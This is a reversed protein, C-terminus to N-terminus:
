AAHQEFRSAIENAPDFGTLRVLDHYASESQVSAADAHDNLFCHLGLKVALGYMSEASTEALCTEVNTLALQAKAMSEENSATQAAEFADLWQRFLVAIKEDM